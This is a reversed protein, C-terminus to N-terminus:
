LKTTKHRLLHDVLVLAVMADGIPLARHAVCPDHRGLVSIDTSEGEKTVTNQKKAISSAPKLAYRLVIDEGNSIGGIIGGARNTKTGISGDPRTEWEDNNESGLRAAAAFGDGIEIGKVAPISMIGKALDASLKDFVPEGLGVPVGTAVVEIVAGVSDGAARAAEIKPILEAENQIHSRISVGHHALVKQAIAGAAVRGITERASARGSGRWDRHGYKEQYTFDAHGPRLKDKISEYDKSKANENRVLMAIPAGTTKGEFVGSLIEVKDKEDRPTTLESQGPRRRRLQAQIDEENLELGSPCGDVIVGLGPGHSEGFTTIRFTHGFSNGPM